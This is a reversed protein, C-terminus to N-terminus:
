FVDQTSPCNEVTHGFEECDECWQSSMAPLASKQKSAPASDDVHNDNLLPCDM